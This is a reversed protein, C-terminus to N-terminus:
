CSVRLCPCRTPPLSPLLVRASPSVGQGGAKFRGRFVHGCRRHRRNSWAAYATQVWQMAASLNALPTTLLLHYHNPMLCYGRPVVGFRRAAEEALELFHRRDEDDLFLAARGNGRSTVHYSAGEFEVRPHRAM